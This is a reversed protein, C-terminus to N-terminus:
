SAVGMDWVTMSVSGTALMGSTKKGSQFTATSGTSGGILRAMMKWEWSNGPNTAWSGGSSSSPATLPGTPTNSWTHRGNMVYYHGNGVDNSWALKVTNYPTTDNLSDPSWLGLQLMLSTGSGSVGVAATLEVRYLRNPLIPTTVSVDNSADDQVIQWPYPAAADTTITTNCTFSKRAIVGTMSRLNGIGNKPTGALSGLVWADEGAVSVWVTDGINPIYTEMFRVRHVMQTSGAISISVTPQQHKGTAADWDPDYGVVVGQLLTDPPPVDRLGGNAISRALSNLDTM